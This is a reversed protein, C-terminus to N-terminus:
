EHFGHERFKLPNARFGLEKEAKDLEARVGIRHYRTFHISSVVPSYVHSNFQAQTKFSMVASKTCTIIRKHKERIIEMNFPLQILAEFM